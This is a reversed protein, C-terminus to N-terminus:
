FAVELGALGGFGVWLSVFVFYSAIMVVLCGCYVCLCFCFVWVWTAFGFLGYCVFYVRFCVVVFM